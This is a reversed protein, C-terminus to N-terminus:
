NVFIVGDKETAKLGTGELLHELGAQMSLGKFNRGSVPELAGAEIQIPIGFKDCILKLGDVVKGSFAGIEDLQTQGPLVFGVVDTGFKAWVIASYESTSQLPVNVQELALLKESRILQSGTPPLQNREPSDEFIEMSVPQNAKYSLRIQRDVMLLTPKQNRLEIGPGAAVTETNTFKAIGILSIVGVSAAAAGYAFLRLWNFRAPSNRKKEWIEKDLRRSIEEHLGAPMVVEPMSSPLGEFMSCFSEFERKLDPNEALYRETKQLLAGSLSGEHLDSFLERAQEHNM